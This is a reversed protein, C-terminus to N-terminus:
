RISSAKNEPLHFQNSNSRNCEFLFIITKQISISQNFESKSTEGPFCKITQLKTYFLKNFVIEDPINENKQINQRGLYIKDENIKM